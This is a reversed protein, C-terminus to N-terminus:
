SLSEVPILDGSIMAHNLYSTLRETNKGARFQKKLTVM